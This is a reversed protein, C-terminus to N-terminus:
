GVVAVMCPRKMGGWSMYRAEVVRIGMDRVDIYDIRPIRRWGADRLMAPLQSVPIAKVVEGSETHYSYGQLTLIANKLAATM